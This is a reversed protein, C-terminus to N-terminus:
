RDDDSDGAVVLMDRVGRRLITVVMLSRVDNANWKVWREHRPVEGEGSSVEVWTPIAISGIGRKGNPFERTLPCPHPFERGM